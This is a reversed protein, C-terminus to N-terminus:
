GGIFFLGTRQSDDGDDYDEFRSYRGITLYKRATLNLANVGRSDATLVEEDECKVSMGDDDITTAMLSDSKDVTLGRADLTIGTTTTVSSAEDTVSESILHRISEEDVITKVSKEVEQLRGDLGEVKETKSVLSEITGQQKDVKLYTQNLLRETKSAANYDTQTEKPFTIHSKEAVGQTIQFDDNLMLTKYETNDERQLTFIDGLELYGIGFSELEYTYYTTGKIQNLLNDIFDERHSDMIQNNEIKVECVGYQAVSETDQAYINDEQPTRAIVLSNVPGYKEGIVLKKLNSEDIVENVETPYIVYLKGDTKFGIMGGAVQAIQDLVDRFTYSNDYKEEEIEVGSNCFSTTALTWGLADCIGQLYAGVTLPYVFSANYPIMSELMKDYCECNTTNTAVDYQCEKVIYEGFQSYMYSTGGNAKVGARSLSIRAGKFSHEGLMGIDMEKMVSSYLAGNFHPNMSVIDTAQYTTYTLNSPDTPDTAVGIRLTAQIEKGYSSIYEKWKTLQASTVTGM